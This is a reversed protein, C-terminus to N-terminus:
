GVGIRKGLVGWVASYNGACLNLTRGRPVDVALLRSPRTTQYVAIRQARRGEWLERLLRVMLRRGGLGTSGEGDDDGDAGQGVM